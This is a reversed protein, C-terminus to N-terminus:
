KCSRLLADSSMKAVLESAFETGREKLKLFDGKEYDTTARWVTANTKLDILKIDYTVSKLANQQATGGNRKITLLTDPKYQKLRQQRAEVAHDYIVIRSVESEVNCSNLLTVFKEQFANAYDEGFDTGIDTIVFIKTPAANYDQAKNSTFNAPRPASANTKDPAKNTIVNASPGYSYFVDNSLAVTQQACGSVLVGVALSLAALNKASKM